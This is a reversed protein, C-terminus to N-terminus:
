ENDTSERDENRVEELMKKGYETKYVQCWLYLARLLDKKDNQIKKIELGAGIEDYSFDDKQAETALKIDGDENISIYFACHLKEALNTAIISLEKKIEAPLDSYEPNVYLKQTYVSAAVIVDKKM